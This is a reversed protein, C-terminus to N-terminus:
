PYCTHSCGDCDWGFSYLWCSWNKPTTILLEVWLSEAARPCKCWGQITVWFAKSMRRSCTLVVIMLLGVGGHKKGAFTKASRLVERHLYVFIRNPSQGPHALQFIELAIFHLPPSSTACAFNCVSTELDKVSVSMSFSTAHASSATAGLPLNERDDGETSLFSVGANCEVAVSHRCFSEWCKGM